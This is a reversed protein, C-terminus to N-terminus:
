GIGPQKVPDKDAKRKEALREQFSPKKVGKMDVNIPNSDIHESLGYQGVNKGTCKYYVWDIMHAIFNSLGGVSHAEVQFWTKGDNTKGVLFERFIKGGQISVDRSGPAKNNNHHSSHREKVIGTDKLADYLKGGDEIMVHAGKAVKSANEFVVTSIIDLVVAASVLDKKQKDTPEDPVAEINAILKAKVSAPDIPMAQVILIMSEKLAAPSQKSFDNIEIKTLIISPNFEDKSM